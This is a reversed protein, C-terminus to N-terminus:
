GPQKRGAEPRPGPRRASSNQSLLSSPKPEPHTARQDGAPRYRSSRFAVDDCIAIMARPRSKAEPGDHLLGLTFKWRMAFANPKAERQRERKSHHVEIAHRPFVSVRPPPPIKYSIKLM